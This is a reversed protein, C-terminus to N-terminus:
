AAAKKEQKKQPQVPMCIKVWACYQHIHFHYLPDLQKHGLPYRRTETM